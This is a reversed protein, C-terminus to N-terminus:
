GHLYCRFEQDYPSLYSGFPAFGQRCDHPNVYCTSLDLGPIVLLLPFGRAGTTQVKCICSNRADPTRGTPVFRKEGKGLAPLITEIPYSLVRDRHGHEEPIKKEMM